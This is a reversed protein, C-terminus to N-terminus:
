CDVFMVKVGAEEFMSQSLRWSEGWRDHGLDPEVSVVLAVGAQILSRACDCCPFHTVVAIAGELPCGHRCANCIGNLEAHATYKYKLPREWREPQSEDVGRPMGNYGLSLVQLSEPKLLIAGVKTHPDKSFEDALHRALKMYKVAKDLRMM